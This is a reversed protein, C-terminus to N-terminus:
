AAPALSPRPESAVRAEVVSRDLGTESLRKLIHTVAERVLCGDDDLLQREAATAHAVYKGPCAGHYACAACTRDMRSRIQDVLRRRQPSGLCRDLPETFINGYKEAPDYAGNVGWLGGDVDVIFVFEDRDPDFVPRREGRLYDIAYRLLEEIPDVPTANKSALWADALDVYAARIEDFTLAQAASQGDDASMYYPLFRHALKLEDFVKFTRVAAAVTGRSLVTIAGCPIDRDILTQLNDIVADDRLRGRVDVRDSGYPDWSVGLGEFFGERILELIGEPLLTLNTQVTNRVQCVGAFASRQIDAVERYYAPKILLPEGGHWIFHVLEYGHTLVHEAVTSFMRRIDELSMRERKHLDHLEYCYRCRLNCYKSIKVVFELRKKVGSIRDM